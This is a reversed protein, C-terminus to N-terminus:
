SNLQYLTIYIRFVLVKKLINMDWIGSNHCSTRGGVNYLTKKPARGASVINGVFGIM